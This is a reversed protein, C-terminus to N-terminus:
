IGPQQQQQQGMGEMSRGLNNMFENRINDRQSQPSMITAPSSPEEEKENGIGLMNEINSLRQDINDMMEQAQNEKVQSEDNSEIIYEIFALNDLAKKYGENGKVKSQSNQEQKINENINEM